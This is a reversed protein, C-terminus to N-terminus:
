RERGSPGRRAGGDYLPTDRRRAVCCPLDYQLKSGSMVLSVEWGGGVLKSNIREVIDNVYFELMDDRLIYYRTAMLHIVLHFRTVCANLM